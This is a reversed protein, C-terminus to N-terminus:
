AHFAEVLRDRIEEFLGFDLMFWSCGLPEVTLENEDEESVYLLAVGGDGDCYLAAIDDRAYTVVARPFLGFTEAFDKWALGRMELKRNIQEDSMSIM